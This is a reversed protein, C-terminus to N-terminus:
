LLKLLKESSVKSFSKTRSDFEFAHIQPRFELSFAPAIIEQVGDGDIDSAFLPSTKSNVFMQGDAKANIKFSTAASNEQNLDYIDVWIEKGSRVKVVKYKAGDVGLDTELSALLIREQPYMFNHVKKQLSPSLFLIGSLVLLAVSLVMLFFNYLGGAKM